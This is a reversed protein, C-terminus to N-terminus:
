YMNNKVHHATPQAKVLVVSNLVLFVLFHHHIRYLITDMQVAIVSSIQLSNLNFLADIVNPQNLAYQVIASM